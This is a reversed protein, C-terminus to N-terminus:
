RIRKGIRIQPEEDVEVPPVYPGDVSETRRKLNNPLNVGLDSLKKYDGGQKYEVPADTGEVYTKEEQQQDDTLASLRECIEQFQEWSILVSQPEGEQNIVTQYDINMQLM